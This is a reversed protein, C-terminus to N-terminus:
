RRKIESIDSVDVARAFRASVGLLAFVGLTVVATTLPFLWFLVIMTAASIVLVALFAAIRSTKSSANM